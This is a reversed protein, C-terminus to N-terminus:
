KMFACVEAATPVSSQAGTHMASIAAAANAFRVAEDITGNEGALCVAVAGNFTDGAATTDVPDIRHAPFRRKGQRNVLLAGRSGMTVLVNQVGARNLADAAREIEDETEVPMGTLLALETENPTLYTGCSLVDGPIPTEPAPAPDLILIKEHKKALRAACWVSELPIELQALIIDAQAIAAENREIWEVDCLYNSGPVVVISNDGDGNVCIFAMGTPADPSKRTYGTDVGVSNLNELALKGMEDDGVAGLFSTNGGMKGCAYAQNAGKGGFNKQFHNSMITEGVAPMHRVGVVNDINVSGIVLIKKM